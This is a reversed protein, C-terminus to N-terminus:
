VAAALRGMVTYAQVALEGALADVGSGQADGREDVAAFGGLDGFVVREVAPLEGDGVGVVADLLDM